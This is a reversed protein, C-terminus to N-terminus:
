MSNADYTIRSVRKYINQEYVFFVFVITSFITSFTDFLIRRSTTDYRKSQLPERSATYPSVWTYVWCRISECSAACGRMCTCVNFVCLQATIRMLIMDHTQLAAVFIRTSSEFLPLVFTVTYPRVWAQVCVSVYSCLFLYARYLWLFNETKKYCTPFVVLALSIIWILIMIIIIM